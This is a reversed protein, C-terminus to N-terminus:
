DDERHDVYMIDSDECVYVHIDSFHILGEGDPRQGVVVLNGLYTRDSELCGTPIYRSEFVMPEREPTAPPIHASVAATLGLIGLALLLYGFNKRM